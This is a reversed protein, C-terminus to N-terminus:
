HILYYSKESNCISVMRNENTVYFLEVGDLFLRIKKSEFAEELKHPDLEYTEFSEYITKDCYWIKM